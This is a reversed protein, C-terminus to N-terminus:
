PTYVNSHWKGRFLTDFATCPLASLFMVGSFCHSYLVSVLEWSVGLPSLLLGCVLIM